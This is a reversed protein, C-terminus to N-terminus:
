ITSMTSAIINYGTIEAGGTSTIQFKFEKGSKFDVNNAEERLFTHSLADDTDFTGITTWSTAGDVKYKVTISEGSAM